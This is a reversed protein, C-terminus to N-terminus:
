SLIPEFQLFSLFIRRKVYLDDIKASLKLKSHVIHLGQHAFINGDSGIAEAEECETFALDIEIIYLDQVLFARQRFCLRHAHSLRIAKEITSQSLISLKAIHNFLM